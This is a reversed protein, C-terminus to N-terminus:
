VVVSFTKMFPCEKYAPVKDESFGESILMKCVANFAATADNCKGKPLSHNFEKHNAVNMSVLSESAMPSTKVTVTMIYITPIDALTRLKAKCEEAFREAEPKSELRRRAMIERITQDM